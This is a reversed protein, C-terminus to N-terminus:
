TVQDAFCLLDPLLEQVLRFFETVSTDGPAPLYSAVPLRYRVAPRLTSATSLGQKEGGKM